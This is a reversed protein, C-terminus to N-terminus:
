FMSIVLLEQLDSGLEDIDPNFTAQTGAAGFCEGDTTVTAGFCKGGRGDGGSSGCGNRTPTM